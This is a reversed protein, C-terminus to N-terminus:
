WVILYIILLFSFLINVATFNQRLQSLLLSGWGLKVHMNFQARLDCGTYWKAGIAGVEGNWKENQWADIEPREKGDTLNSQCKSAADRGLQIEDHAAIAHM